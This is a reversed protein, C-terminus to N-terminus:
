TGRMMKWAVIALSTHEFDIGFVGRDFIGAGYRSDNLMVTPRPLAASVSVLGSIARFHRKPDVWGLQM